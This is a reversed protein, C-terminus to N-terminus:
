KISQAHQMSKGKIKANKRKRDKGRKAEAQRIQSRPANQTRCAATNVEDRRRANYNQKYIKKM